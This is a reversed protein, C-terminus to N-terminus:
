QAPLPVARSLTLGNRGIRILGRQLAQAQRLTAPSWDGTAAEVAASKVVLRSPDVLAALHEQQAVMKALDVERTWNFSAWIEREATRAEGLTRGVATDRETAPDVAESWCFRGAAELRDIELGNRRFGDRLEAISATEGGLFKILLADHQDGLQFFAADLRQLLPEDQAVAVLHDPVTVFARLHGLLSPAREGRRLFAELSSSRIRWSKGPKLCELLGDRCWRHVTTPQVGLRDAVAEVGLLEEHQDWRETMVREEPAAIEAVGPSRALNYYVRKTSKEDSQM